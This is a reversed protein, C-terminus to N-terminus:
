HYEVVPLVPRNLSIVSSCPRVRAFKLVGLAAAMAPMKNQMRKMATSQSRRIDTGVSGSSAPSHSLVLEPRAANANFRTGNAPSAKKHNM